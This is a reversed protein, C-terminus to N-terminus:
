EGHVESVYTIIYYASFSEPIVERIFDDAGQIAFNGTEVSIINSKLYVSFFQETEFNNPFLDVHCNETIDEDTVMITHLNDDTSINESFYTLSKLIPEVIDLGINKRATAKQEDSLTQETTLVAKAAIDQLASQVETEANQATEAAQQAQEQASDAVNQTYLASEILNNITDAQVSDIDNIYQTDHNFDQATKKSPTFRAM